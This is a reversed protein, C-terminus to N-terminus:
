RLGYMATPTHRGRLIQPPLPQWSSGTVSEGAADLLDQSLVLAYDMRKAEGELRSAINVTDGLVSFELRQEDGIAGVFVEGWHAGIGIRVPEEGAQRLKDNWAAIGALVDAGPAVTPIDAEAIYQSPDQSSASVQYAVVVALVVAVALWLTHRRSM